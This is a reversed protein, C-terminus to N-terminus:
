GPCPPCPQLVAPISQGMGKGLFLMEFCFNRDLVCTNLHQFQIHRFLYRGRRLFRKYYHFKTNPIRRNFKLKIGLEPQKAANEQKLKSLSIHQPLYLKVLRVVSFDQIKFNLKVAQPNLHKVKQSHHLPAQLAGASLVGTFLALSSVELFGSFIFMVPLPSLITGFVSHSILSLYHGAPPKYCFHIYFRSLCLRSTSLNEWETTAFQFERLHSHQLPCHQAAAGHDGQEPQRTEALASVCSSPNIEHTSAPIQCPSHPRRLARLEPPQASPSHQM